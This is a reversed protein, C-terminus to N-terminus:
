SCLRTASATPRRWVWMMRPALIPAAEEGTTSITIATTSAPTM